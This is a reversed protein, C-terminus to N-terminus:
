FGDHRDGGRGGAERRRGRQRRKGRRRGGRHPRPAGGAALGVALARADRPARAARGGGLAGAGAISSPLALSMLASPSPKAKGSYASLGTPVPGKLNTSYSSALPDM